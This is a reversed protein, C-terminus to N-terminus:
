EWGFIDKVQKIRDVDGRKQFYELASKGHRIALLGKGDIDWYIEALRAWTLAIGREDDAEKRAELTMKYFTVAKNIDGKVQEVYAINQLFNGIDAITAANNAMAATLAMKTEEIEKDSMLFKGYIKCIFLQFVSYAKAIPDNERVEIARILAEVANGYRGMRQLTSGRYHLALGLLSDKIEGDPLLDIEAMALGLQELAEQHKGNKQLQNAEAVMDEIRKKTTPMEIKGM